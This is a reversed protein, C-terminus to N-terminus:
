GHAAGLRGHDDEVRVVDDLHPTQVEILRLDDLAEVRHIAGPKNEVITGPGIIECVLAGDPGKFEIKARGRDVYIHEHKREHYQLSSRQGARLEIIKLCYSDTVAVWLESGWPKEVTRAPEVIM